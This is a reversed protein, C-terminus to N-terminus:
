EVNGDNLGRGARYGAVVAAAFWLVVFVGVGVLWGCVFPVVLALIALWARLNVRPMAEAEQQMALLLWPDIVGAENAAM